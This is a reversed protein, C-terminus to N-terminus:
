QIRNKLNNYVCDFKTCWFCWYGPIFYDSAALERLSESDLFKKVESDNYNIRVLIQEGMYNYVLLASIEKDKFRPDSKLANFYLLIQYYDAITARGPSYSKIEMILVIMENKGCLIDISGRVKDTEIYYEDICSFGRKIFFSKVSELFKNHKTTHKRSLEKNPKFSPCKKLTKIEVLRRIGVPLAIIIM